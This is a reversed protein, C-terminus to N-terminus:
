YRAALAEIGKRFEIDWCSPSTIISDIKNTNYCDLLELVDDESVRCDNSWSQRMNGKEIYAKIWADDMGCLSSKDKLWEISTAAVVIDPSMALMGVIFVHSPSAELLKTEIEGAEQSPEASGYLAIVALKALMQCDRCISLSSDESGGYEIAMWLNDIAVEEERPTGALLMAKSKLIFKDVCDVSISEDLLRRVVENRIVGRKQAHFSLKMLISDPLYYVWQGTTVVNSIFVAISLFVILISIKLHGSRILRRALRGHGSGSSSAGCEPCIREKTDLTTLPYGCAVCAHLDKSLALARMAVLLLAVFVLIICIINIM